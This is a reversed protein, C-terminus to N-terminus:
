RRSTASGASPARGARRPPRRRRRDRRGAGDVGRRQQQRELDGVVDVEVRRDVVGRVEALQESRVRAGSSGFQVLRGTPYWPLAPVTTTLPVGTRRGAPSTPGPSRRGLAASSMSSSTPSRRRRRSPRAVGDRGVVGVLVDEADYEDVVPRGAVDLGELVLREAREEALREARGDPAHTTGSTASRSRSTSRRRLVRQGVGRELRRLRPAEVEVEGDLEVAVLDAARVEGVLPPGEGLLEGVERRVARRRAGAVQQRRAGHASGVTLALGAAEDLEGPAPASGSSSGSPVVRVNRSSPSVTTRRLSTRPSHAPVTGQELLAGFQRGLDICATPIAVGKADVGALARWPRTVRGRRFVGADLLAKVIPRTAEQRIAVRKPSRNARRWTKFAPLGVTEYVGPQVITEFMGGIVLPSVRRVAIREVFGAKRWREGVVNRAFALHRAEESRHYRNVDKVFPDTDPHEAALKQFLDPIEEGGLVLVYFMAPHRIIWRIGIKELPQLFKLPNRATPRLQTLLRSFLRSHRTEEGVEHLAYVVRPDTLDDAHAIELAFGAMLVAEFRLGMDVISAM